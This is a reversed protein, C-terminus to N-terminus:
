INRNFHYELYKRGTQMYAEIDRVLDHKKRLHIKDVEDSIYRDCAKFLM